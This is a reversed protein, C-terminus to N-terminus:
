YAEFKFSQFRKIETIYQQSMEGQENRQYGLNILSFFLHNFFFMLKLQGTQIQFNFNFIKNHKM